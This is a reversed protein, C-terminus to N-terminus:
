CLVRGAFARFIILGGAAGGTQPKLLWAVLFSLSSKVACNLHHGDALVEPLAGSAALAM